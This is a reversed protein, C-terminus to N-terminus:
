VPRCRGTVQIQLPKMRTSGAATTSLTLRSQGPPLTIRDILEVGGPISQESVRQATGSAPTVHWQRQSVAGPTTGANLWQQKLEYHCLGNEMSTSQRDSVIIVDSSRWQRGGLFLTVSSNAPTRAHSPPPSRGIRPALGNSPSRTTPPAGSLVKQEPLQIGGGLAPSPTVAMPAQQLHGMQPAATKPAFGGSQRTGGPLQGSLVKQQPINLGGAFGGTSPSQSLLGGKLEQMAPGRQTDFPSPNIKPNVLELKSELPNKKEIPLDKNFTMEFILLPTNVGDIHKPIVGFLQYDFAKSTSPPGFGFDQNPLFQVAAVIGSSSALIVLPDKASEGLMGPGLQSNLQVVKQKVVKLLASYDSDMKLDCSLLNAPYDPYLSKYTEKCSAQLTPRSCVLRKSSSFKLVGKIECPYKSGKAILADRVSQAIEDGAASSIKCQGEQAVSKMLASCNNYSSVSGCYLKSNTLSCGNAKLYDHFRQAFVSKNGKWFVAGCWQQHTLAKVKDAEPKHSNIWRDVHAFPSGYLADDVCRKIVESAVASSSNKQLGAVVKASAAVKGPTNYQSRWTALNGLVEVVIHKTWQADVAQTFVQSAIDVASKPLGSSYVYNPIGAISWVPPAHLANQELQQRLTYFGSPNTAEIATLGQGVKPQFVWAYAIQEPPSSKGCGGLGLSCGVAKAAEWAGE